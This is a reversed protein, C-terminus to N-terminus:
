GVRKSKRKNERTRITMYRDYNEITPPEVPAAPSGLPRVPITQMQRHRTQTDLAM